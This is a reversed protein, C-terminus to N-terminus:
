NEKRTGSTTAPPPWFYGPRPTTTATETDHDLYYAHGVYHALQEWANQDIEQDTSLLIVQHSAQPFYRQLLHHRHQGDLRGLPTDIIVPLARGSAQALGWLLSTALLQREGASLQQPLLLQGDRGRLEVSFTQPDLLIETILRDKRLLQKLADLVFTQIRDLNRRVAETRFTALTTRVQESHNVLRLSEQASLTNDANRNLLREYTKEAEARKARAAAVEEEIQKYKEVAAAHARQADDRACRFRELAQETPVAALTRQTEELEVVLQARQQILETIAEQTRHLTDTTLARAADVSDAPLDLVIDLDAQQQRAAREASLHAAVRTVAPTSTRNSRLLELVTHDRETLLDLIQRQRAAHQEQSARDVLDTLQAHVQLLPAPGTALDVLRTDLDQLSKKLHTETTALQHTRDLLEGGELRYRTEEDHRRKEARERAVKAAALQQEANGQAQKTATIRHRVADITPQLDDPAAKTRHNREIVTLDTALREVLDLGLLAKIATQLVDRANDLEALTEIKEGDFFFLETVGRPIFADVREAWQETLARDLAGDTFVELRERVGAGAASWCRRLRYSRRIGDQYAHFALEISAGESPPTECHILRRLYAQYSGGRRGATRALAGFLVVHVAELITTKGAGNLAGILVIPKDPAPPTLSLAHRGGFVGVNHLVLEDFIM